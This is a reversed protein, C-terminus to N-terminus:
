TRIRVNHAVYPNQWNLLVLVIPKTKLRMPIAEHQKQGARDYEVVYGNGNYDPNGKSTYLLCTVSLKEPLGSAM